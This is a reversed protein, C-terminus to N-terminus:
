EIQEAVPVHTLDTFQRVRTLVDALTLSEFGRVGFGAVAYSGMAAGYVMARRMAADTSERCRALYAMFGGAFADGAGTPDFVEELPFAPVYFTRGAEMLLAGYEGQKIVVRGPGQTLIWRGARHINWDGSLERAETDNVMLIDV